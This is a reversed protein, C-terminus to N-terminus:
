DIPPSITSLPPNLVSLFHTIMHAFFYFASGAAEIITFNLILKNLAGGFYTIFIM